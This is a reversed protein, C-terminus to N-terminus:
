ACYSPRSRCFPSRIAVMSIHRWKVRDIFFAAAALVRWYEVGFSSSYNDGGLLNHKRRQKDTQRYTQRDTQQCSQAFVGSRIRMLQEPFTTLPGIFLHNFNFKSPSGSGTQICPNNKPNTVIPLYAVSCHQAYMAMSVIVDNRWRGKASTYVTGTSRTKIVRTSASNWKRHDSLSVQRLHEHEAAAKWLFNNFHQLKDFTPRRFAPWLFQHIRKPKRSTDARKSSAQVVGTSVM